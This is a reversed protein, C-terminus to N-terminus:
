ETTEQGPGDAGREVGFAHDLGLRAILAPVSGERPLRVVLGHGRAAAEARAALLMQLGAVDIDTLGALDLDLDGKAIGDMLEVVLTPVEPLGLVGVIREM